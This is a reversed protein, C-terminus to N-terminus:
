LVEYFDSLVRCLATCRMVPSILFSFLAQVTADNNDKMWENMVHGSPNSLEMKSWDDILKCDLGMLQALLRWDNGSSRTINLEKMLFIKVDQQIDRMHTSGKMKECPPILNLKQQNELIREAHDDVRTTVGEIAFEVRPNLCPNNADIQHYNEGAIIQLTMIKDKIYTLNDSCVIDSLGNKYAACKLTLKNLAYSLQSVRRELNVLHCEHSLENEYKKTMMEKLAEVLVDGSLKLVDFNDGIGRTLRWQKKMQSMLLTGLRTLKTAYLDRELKLETSARNQQDKGVTSSSSSNARLKKVSDKKNKIKTSM